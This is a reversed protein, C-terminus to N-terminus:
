DFNEMEPPLESEFELWGGNPHYFSLKAAHLCLRSYPKAGYWLDGVIPHGMHACHIRLQNTRGTVPELELLTTETRRDLVRFRTEAEKGEELVRWHPKEEGIRGIPAIITGTDEAAIGEVVALYLKKVLKRQFHDSLIRHARATKAVVMLGSTDKDLRHILGPRVVTKPKLNQIKSKVSQATDGSETESINLYYALANALTGTKVNKTPHVLMGAPKNVVLIEADEFLIELSIDEPTMATLAAVNIQIKVKDGIELHYGRPKTEGNVLCEGTELTDRLYMRSVVGIERYLFRDLRERANEETIEFEFIKESM